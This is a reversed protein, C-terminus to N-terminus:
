GPVGEVSIRSFKEAKPPWAWHAGLSFTASSTPMPAAYAPARATTVMFCTPTFTAASGRNVTAYVPTVPASMRMEASSGPM